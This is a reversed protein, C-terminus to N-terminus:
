GETRCEQILLAPLPKVIRTRENVSRGFDFGEMRPVVEAIMDGVRNIPSANSQEIVTAGPLSRVRPIVEDSSEWGM